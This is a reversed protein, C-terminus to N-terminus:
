DTNASNWRANGEAMWEADKATSEPTRWDPLDSLQGTFINLQKIVAGAHSKDNKNWGDGGYVSLSGRWAKYIESWQDTLLDWDYCRKITDASAHTALADFAKQADSIYGKKWAEYAGGAPCHRTYYAAIGDSTTLDSWMIKAREFNFYDAPKNPTAQAVSVNLLFLITAILV